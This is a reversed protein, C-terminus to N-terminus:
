NCLFFWFTILYFLQSVNFFFALALDMINENDLKSDQWVGYVKFAYFASIGIGVFVVIQILWKIMTDIKKGDLFCDTILIVMNYGTVVFSALFSVRGYLIRAATPDDDALASIRFWLLFTITIHILLNPVNCIYKFIECFGGQVRPRSSMLRKSPNM